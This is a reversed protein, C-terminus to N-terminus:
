RLFSCSCQHNYFWSLTSTVKESFPIFTVGWVWMRFNSIRSIESHFKKKLHVNSKLILTASHKSLKNYIKLRNIIQSNAFIYIPLYLVISRARRQQEACIWQNSLNIQPHRCLAWEVMSANRYIQIKSLSTKLVPWKWKTRWSM